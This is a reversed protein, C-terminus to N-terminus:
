SFRKGDPSSFTWLGSRTFEVDGRDFAARLAGGAGVSWGTMMDVDQGDSIALVNAREIPLAGASPLELDYKEKPEEAIPKDDSPTGAPPPALVDQGNTAGNSCAAVGLVLPLLLRLSTVRRECALRM